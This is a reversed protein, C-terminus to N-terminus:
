AYCQVLYLQFCLGVRYNVKLIDISRRTIHSVLQDENDFHRGHMKQQEEANTGVIKLTVFSCWILGDGFIHLLTM